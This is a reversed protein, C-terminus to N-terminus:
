IVLHVGFYPIFLILGFELQYAPGKWSWENIMIWPYGYATTLAFSENYDTRTVYFIEPALFQGVIQKDYVQFGTNTERFAKRSGSQFVGMLGISISHNYTGDPSSYTKKQYRLLSFSTSGKYGDFKPFYADEYENKFKNSTMGILSIATENDFKYCMEITPFDYEPGILRYGVKLFPKASISAVPVIAM